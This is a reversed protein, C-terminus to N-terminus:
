HGEGPSAEKIDTPPAESVIKEGTNTLTTQQERSAQLDSKSLYDIQEIVVDVIADTGIRKNLATKIRERFAKVDLGRNDKIRVLKDGVLATYLEDTLLAPIPLTVDVMKNKDVIYSTKALFYGAVSGDTIVPFTVMEGHVLEQVAKQKAAEEAPDVPKSLEISAYVSGLAVIAVWAGVLILKLM